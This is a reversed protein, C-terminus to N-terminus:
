GELWKLIDEKEINRNLKKGSVFNLNPYKKSLDTFSGDATSGGSTVFVYIKKNNLDNEEIFTNIITPATYWWVPFGIIVEDYSDINSVKNVIGPRSKKDKMEITTRSNEDQWNLDEETYKQKPEIEFLDSETFDAIMSAVTKTIGTASFYCVIRKM